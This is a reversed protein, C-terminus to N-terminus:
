HKNTIKLAVSHNYWMLVCGDGRAIHDIDAVSATVEQPGEHSVVTGAFETGSEM